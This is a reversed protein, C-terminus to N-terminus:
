VKLLTVGQNGARVTASKRVKGASTHRKSIAFGKAGLSATRSATCKPRTEGKRGFHQCGSAVARRPGPAKAVRETPAEAPNKESVARAAKLDGRIGESRSEKKGISPQAHV